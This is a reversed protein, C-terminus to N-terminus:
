LYMLNLRPSRPHIQSHFSHCPFRRSHSECSLQKVSTSTSFMTRIHRSHASVFPVYPHPHRPRIACKPIVCLRTSAIPTPKSRTCSHKNVLHRLNCPTNPSPRTIRHTVPFFPSRRTASFPLYHDAAQHFSRNESFYSPIACASRRHIENGRGSRNWGSNQYSSKTHPLEFFRFLNLVFSPNEFLSEIGIKTTRFVRYLFESVFTKLARHTSRM